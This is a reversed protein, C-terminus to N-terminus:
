LYGALYDVLGDGHRVLGYPKRCGGACRDVYPCERCEVPLAEVSVCPGIEPCSGIEELSKVGEMECVGFCAEMRGRINVNLAAFPGCDQTRGHFVRAGLEIPKIACFPMALFIGEVKDPYRDMLGAMEEAFAQGDAPSWPRPVSPTSEYRLPMWFLRPSQAAFLVFDKLRGHLEPLLATLLCVRSVGSELALGIVEEKKALVDKGGTLADMRSSDPTPLSIRIDNVARFLKRYRGTDGTGNTNLIVYRGRLRAYSCFMEIEPHLMAEGGTFRVAPVRNDVAWDIWRLVEEEAMFLAEPSPGIGQYCFLCDLNCASTVEIKLERPALSSIVIGKGRVGKDPFPM